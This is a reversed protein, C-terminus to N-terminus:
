EGSRSAVAPAADIWGRPLAEAYVWLAAEHVAPVREAGAQTHLWIAATIAQLTKGLGMDDALLARGNGALFAARAAVAHRCLAEDRECPCAVLLTGDTDRSVETTLIMGSEADEVEARLLEEERVVRTVRKSQFDELGVRVLRETSLAYLQDADLLLPDSPATCAIPM